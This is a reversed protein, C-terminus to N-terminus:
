LWDVCFKIKICNFDIIYVTDGLSFISGKMCTYVRTNLLSTYVRMPEAVCTLSRFFKRAQSEHMHVQAETLQVQSVCESTEDKFVTEIRRLWSLKLRLCEAEIRRLWSLKLGLM